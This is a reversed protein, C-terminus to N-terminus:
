RTVENGYGAVRIIRVAQELHTVMWGDDDPHHRAGGLLTAVTYTHAWAWWRGPNGIRYRRTVLIGHDAGAHERQTELEDLWEDIQRDSPHHAYAGGKVSWALGPTGTLDGADLHGRLARREAGPWGNERLYRVVATETATGVQKSRNM